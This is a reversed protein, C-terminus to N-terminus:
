GERQWSISIQGSVINLKMSRHGRIYVATSCVLSVDTHVKPVHTVLCILDHRGYWDLPCKLPEMIIISAVLPGRRCQRV